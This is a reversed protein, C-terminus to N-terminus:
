VINDVKIKDLINLVVGQAESLSLADNDIEYDAEISEMEKESVHSAFLTKNENSARKTRIIIGGLDRIMKEESLFRVDPIIYNKNKDYNNIFIDIWLGRRIKLPIIRSIERAVETGFKQLFERASVGWNEHIELKAEQTTYLSEKSFGFIEAIKKIPDAVNYIFYGGGCKQIYDGITSKGSGMKGTIGIIM